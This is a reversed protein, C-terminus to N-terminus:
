LVESEPGHMGHVDPGGGIPEPVKNPPAAAQVKRAAKRAKSQKKRLQNEARKKEWYQTAEDSPDNQDYPYTIM